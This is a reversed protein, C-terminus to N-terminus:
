CNYAENPLETLFYKFLRRCFRTGDLNHGTDDFSDTRDRVCARLGCRLGLAFLERASRDKMAGHMKIPTTSAEANRVMSQEFWPCKTCGFRCHVGNSSTILMLQIPRYKSVSPLDCIYMVADVVEQRKLRLSFVDDHM